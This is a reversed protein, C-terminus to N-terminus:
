WDWRTAVAVQQEASPDASSFVAQMFDAHNLEPMDGRHHLITRSGNAQSVTIYQSCRLAAM